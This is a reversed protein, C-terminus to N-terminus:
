ISFADNGYLVAIDSDLTLAFLHRTCFPGVEFFPTEGTVAEDKEFNQNLKLVEQISTGIVWIEMNM